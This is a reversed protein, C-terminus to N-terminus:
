AGSNVWLRTFIFVCVICGEEGGGWGRTDKEGSLRASRSLFSNMELVLEPNYLLTILNGSERLITFAGHHGHWHHWVRGQKSLHSYQKRRERGRGRERERERETCAHTHQRAPPRASRDNFQYFPWVCRCLGHVSKPLPDRSSIGYRPLLPFPLVVASSMLAIWIIMPGSM